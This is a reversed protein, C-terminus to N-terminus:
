IRNGMQSLEFDSGRKFKGLQATEVYACGYEDSCCIM